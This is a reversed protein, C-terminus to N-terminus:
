ASSGPSGSCQLRWDPPVGASRSWSAPWRLGAGAVVALVLATVRPAGVPGALLLDARDLDEDGRLFRTVTLIAWVALILQWIWGADWLAFGAASELAYPTGNIMRIAPNDEFMAFQVPSVGDPYATGYSAIELACYAVLAIAMLVTSRRLLRAYLRAVSRQPHADARLTAARDGGRTEVPNHVPASDPGRHGTASTM